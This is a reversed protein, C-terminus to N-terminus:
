ICECREEEPNWKYLYEGDDGCLSPNEEGNEHLRFQYTGDDCLLIDGELPEEFATSFGHIIFFEDNVRIYHKFGIFEM